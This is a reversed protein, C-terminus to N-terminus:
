RELKKFSYGDCIAILVTSIAQLILAFQKFYHRYVQNSLLNNVVAALGAEIFNALSYINPGVLSMFYVHVVPTTFGFILNSIAQSIIMLWKITNFM